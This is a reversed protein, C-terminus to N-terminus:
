SARCKAGKCNRALLGPRLTLIIPEVYPSWFDDFSPGDFRLFGVGAGVDLPDFLTYSLATGANLTWVTRSKGRGSDGYDPENNSAFAFGM